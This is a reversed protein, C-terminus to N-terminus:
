AATWSYARFLVSSMPLLPVTGVRHDGQPLTDMLFRGGIKHPPDVALGWGWAHPEDLLQPSLGM